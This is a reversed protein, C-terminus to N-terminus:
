DPATWATLSAPTLTLGTSNSYRYRRERSRTPTLSSTKTPAFYDWTECHHGVRTTMPLCSSACSYAGSAAYSRRHYRRQPSSVRCLCLPSICDASYWSNVSSPVPSRHNDRSNPSKAPISSFAPIPDPSSSSSLTTLSFASAAPPVSVRAAAWDAM